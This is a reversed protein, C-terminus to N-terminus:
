AARRAACRTILRMLRKGLVPDGNCHHSVLERLRFSEGSFDRLLRRVLGKELKTLPRKRNRGPDSDGFMPTAVHMAPTLRDASRYGKIPDCAKVGLWGCHREIVPGIADFFDQPSIASQRNFATQGPEAHGFGYSILERSMRSQNLYQMVFHRTGNEPWLWEPWLAKWDKKAFPRLAYKGNSYSLISFLACSPYGEGAVVLSRLQAAISPADKDLYGAVAATSSLFHEFQLRAETALPLARQENMDFQRKDCLLVVDIDFDTPRPFPENTARHGTTLCLVALTYMVVANYATVLREPSFRGLRVQQRTREFLATLASRLAQPDIVLESGVQAHMLAKKLETSPPPIYWGLASEVASAHARYLRIAPYASYYIGSGILIRSSPLARAVLCEDQTNRLLETGIIEQLRGFTLRAGTALRLMEAAERAHVAIDPFFRLLYGAQGASKQLLLESVFLPLGVASARATPLLGPMQAHRRYSHDAIQVGHVAVISRGDLIALHWHGDKSAEHAEEMTPHLALHPIEEPPIALCVPLALALQAEPALRHFARQLSAVEGPSLRDWALPLHQYAREGEYLNRFVRELPDTEDDDDGSDDVARRLADADEPSLAINDPDAMRNVDIEIDFPLLRVIDIALPAEISVRRTVVTNRYSTVHAEIARWIAPDLGRPLSPSEDLGSWAHWVRDLVEASVKGSTCERLFQGLRKVHQLAPTVVVHGLVKPAIHPWALLALLAVWSANKGMTSIEILAAHIPYQDIDGYLANQEQPRSRSVHRHEDERLRLQQDKAGLEVSRWQREKPRWVQYVGAIQAVSAYLEQRLSMGAILVENALWHVPEPTGRAKSAPDTNAAHM